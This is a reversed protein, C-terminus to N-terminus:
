LTLLGGAAQRAVGYWPPCPAGAPATGAAASEAAPNTNQASTTHRLTVNSPDGPPRSACPLGLAGDM